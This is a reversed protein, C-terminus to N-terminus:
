GDRAGFSGEYTEGKRDFGAVNLGYSGSVDITWAGDLTKLRPGRSETVVSSLNFKERMVRLFPFPVRSADTFREHHVVASPL